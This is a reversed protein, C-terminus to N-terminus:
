RTGTKELSLAIQCEAGHDAYLRALTNRLGAKQGTLHEELEGPGSLEAVIDAALIWETSVEFLKAVRYAHKHSLHEPGHVIRSALSQSRNLVEGLAETDVRGDGRVGVESPLLTSLRRNVRRRWLDLFEGSAFRHGALPEARELRLSYVTFMLKRFGRRDSAVAREVEALGTFRDLLDAALIYELSLGFHEAVKQAQEHSLQRDCRSLAITVFARSTGLIEALDKVSVNSRSQRSSNAPCPLLEALRRNVEARWEMAFASENASTLSSWTFGLCLAARCILNLLKIM